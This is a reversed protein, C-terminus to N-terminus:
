GVRSPPATWRGIRTMRLSITTPTGPTGPAGSGSLSQSLLLSGHLPLRRAGPRDLRPRRPASRAGTRGGSPARVPQAQAAASPPPAPSGNTSAIVSRLRRMPPVYVGSTSMSASASTSPPSLITTGTATASRPPSPNPNRSLFLPSPMILPRPRRHLRLRGRLCSALLMVLRAAAAAPGSIEHLAEAGEAEPAAAAAAPPRSSPEPPIQVAPTQPPNLASLESEPSLRRRPTSPDPRLAHRSHLPFLSLSLLIM